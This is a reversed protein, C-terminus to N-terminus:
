PWTMISVNTAFCEQAFLEFGKSRHNNFEFRSGVIDGAIVGLM